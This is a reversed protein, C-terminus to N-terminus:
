QILYHQDDLVVEPEKQSVFDIMEVDHRRNIHGGLIDDKTKKGKNIVAM